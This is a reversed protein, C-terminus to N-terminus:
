VNCQSIIDFIIKEFKFIMARTRTYTHTHVYMNYVHAM